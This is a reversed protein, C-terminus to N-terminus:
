KERVEFSGLAIDLEGEMSSMDDAFERTHYILRARYGHPKLALKKRIQFKLEAGPGLTTQRNHPPPTNPDASRVDDLTCDVSIEDSWYVNSPQVAKDQGAQIYTPIMLALFATSVLPDFM